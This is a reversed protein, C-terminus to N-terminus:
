IYTSYVYETDFPPDKRMLIVDLESLKELQPEGLRFWDREDERVSLSRTRGLAVGDRLYLDGQELYSLEFGRVQAARLMALTSDKAYKVVQIPDMVVALRLKDSM